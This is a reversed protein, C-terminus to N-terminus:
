LQLSKYELFEALGHSGFERGIGSRKFGGFPALPNFRGGNIDIQGARMRRAFAVATEEDPGFVAGALGYPTGNAIAVAEDLDDYPLIVLVPGFIEEQAVTADPRVDALVTARVYFGEVLGDPADPGGAVVTAGERVGTDIYGRV